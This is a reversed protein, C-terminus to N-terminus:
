MAVAASHGFPPYSTSFEGNPSFAASIRWHSIQMMRSLNRQIEIKPPCVPAGHAPAFSSVSDNADPQFSYIMTQRTPCGGVPNIQCDVRHLDRADFSNGNVNWDFRAQRNSAAAAASM